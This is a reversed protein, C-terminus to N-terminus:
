RTAEKKGVFHAPIETITPTIASTTSNSTGNLRRQDRRMERRVMRRIFKSRDINLGTKEKEAEVKEELWDLLDLDNKFEVNVFTNREYAM